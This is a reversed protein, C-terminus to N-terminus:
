RTTWAALHIETIGTILLLDVCISANPKYSRTLPIIPPLYICRAWDYVVYYAPVAPAPPIAFHMCSSHVKFNLQDKRVELRM